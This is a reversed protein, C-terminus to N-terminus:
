EGRLAVAPAVRLARRLPLLVALWCLALTIALVAPAVGARLEVAADFVQRGIWRADWAGLLLGLAGGALGLLTAEGLLMRMVEGDSAGLSRMLGIEPAREVVISMLTTMVCMGALLLVVGTILLMMRDLKALLAGRARSVRLIPVAELRGGSASRLGAAIAAIAGADGELIGTVVSIRGPSGAAVQLWRLPVLVQEDEAEGTEVVAAVELVRTPGGPVRIEARDGPGLGLRRATVSGVVCAGGGEPWAGEVRWGSALARASSWEVGLLVTPEGEVSGGALLVPSLTLGRGPPALAAARAVWAEDLAAGARDAAPRILLNAGYARLEHTMKRGLDARLGLATATVSSGVVVALLALAFGAARLDLSRALLRVAMRWRRVESAM